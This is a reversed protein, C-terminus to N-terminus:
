NSHENIMAKTMEYETVYEILAAILRDNPMPHGMEAMDRVAMAFGLLRDQVSQLKQYKSTM